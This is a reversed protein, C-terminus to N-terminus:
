LMKEWDDDPYHDEEMFKEADKLLNGLLKKSIDFTIRSSNCKPCIAGEAFRREGDARFVSHELNHNNKLHWRILDHTDDTLGEVRFIKKTFPGKFGCNTCRVPGFEKFNKIKGIEEIEKYSLEYIRIIDEQDSSKIMPFIIFQENISTKFIGALSVIM